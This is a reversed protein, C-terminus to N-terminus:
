RRATPPRCRRAPARIMTTASTRLTKRRRAPEVSAAVALLAGSGAVAQSPRLAPVDRHAHDDRAPLEPCEPLVEPGGLRREPRHGRAGHLLRILDVQEDVVPLRRGIDHLDPEVEHVHLREALHVRIAELPPLRHGLDGERDRWGVQRDHRPRKAQRGGWGVLRGFTEIAEEGLDSPGAARHARDRDVLSPDAIRGTAAGRFDGVDGRVSLGDPRDRDLVLVRRGDDSGDARDTEAAVDVRAIRDTERRQQGAPRRAVRHDVDPRVRDFEVDALAQGVARPSRDRVPGLDRPHALPEASPPVTAGAARSRVISTM